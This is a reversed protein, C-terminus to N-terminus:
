PRETMADVSSTTEESFPEGLPESGSRGGDALGAFSQHLLRLLVASM